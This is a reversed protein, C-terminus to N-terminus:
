ENVAILPNDERSPDSITIGIPAEEPARHRLELERQRERRDTIDRVLWLRGFTPGGDGDVSTTYWEFIRGDRLRLESTETTGSAVELQDIVDEISTEDALQTRISEFVADITASELVTPSLDFLECFRDNYSVFESDSDIVAVGDPM